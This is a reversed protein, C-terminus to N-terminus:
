AKSRIMQELHVAVGDLSSDIIRAELDPSLELSIKVNGNMGMASRDGYTKGVNNGVKDLPTVDVREPGNEGFLAKTPRTAILSGGEALGYGHGGTLSSFTDAFNSFTNGPTLSGGVLAGNSSIPTLNGAMNYLSSWLSSIAQMGQSTLQYEKQLADALDRLKRQLYQQQEQLQRQHWIRADELQRQNALKAEARERAEAIKIEELKQAYERQAAEIKKQREYEIDALKTALDKKAQVRELKHRDELNQKDMNYQRILRLVQRADRERLADELDFLFRERLEKLKQQFEAERDIEKQRADKNAEAIKEAADRNIDEIKQNLNRLADERKQATNRAIDELKQQYNTAIDALKRQYEREIDLKKDASDKLIEQLKDQGEKVAKQVNEQNKQEEGSVDITGTTPTEAPSLNGALKKFWEPANDPVGEPFLQKFVLKKAEEGVDHIAKRLEGFSKINGGVLMRLVTLITTLVTGVTALAAKFYNV